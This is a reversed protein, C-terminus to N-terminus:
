LAAQEREGEEGRLLKFSFSLVVGSDSFIASFKRTKDHSNLNVICILNHGRPKQSLQSRSM